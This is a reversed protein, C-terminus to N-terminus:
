QPEGTGAEASQGAMAADSRGSRFIEAAANRQTCRVNEQRRERWYEGYVIHGLGSPLWGSRPQGLRDRRRWPKLSDKHYGAKQLEVISELEVAWNSVKTPSNDTVNIFVHVQPNAWDFKTVIGKINVTKTTDFKAALEQHALAPGVLLLAAISFTTLIFLGYKM